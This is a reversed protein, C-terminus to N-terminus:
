VQFFYHPKGTLPEDARKLSWICHDRNNGIADIAKTGVSFSFNCIVEGKGGFKAEIKPLLPMDPLKIAPTITELIEGVISEPNCFEGKVSVGAECTLTGGIKKIYKSQPLIDRVTVYPKAPYSAEFGVSTVKRMGSEQWVAVTTEVLLLRNDDLGQLKEPLEKQAIRALERLDRITPRNGIFVRFREAKIDPDEEGSLLDSDLVRPNIVNRDTLLIGRQQQKLKENAM